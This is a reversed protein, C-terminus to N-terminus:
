FVKRYELLLFGFLVGSQDFSYMFDPHSNILGGKLKEIYQLLINWMALYNMGLLVRMLSM